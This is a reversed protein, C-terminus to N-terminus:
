DLEQELIAKIAAKTAKPDIEIEWDEATEILEAKTMSDLDIEEIEWDDEENAEIVDIDAEVVAEDETDVITVEPEPAPPPPPPPPTPAAPPGALYADIDDQSIRLAVLLENTRPDVWGRRTPIANKAHNPAKIM